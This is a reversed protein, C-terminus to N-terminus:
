QFPFCREAVGWGKLEKGRVHAKVVAYGEFLTNTPLPNDKQTMEGAFVPQEIDFYANMDPISVKHNAYYTFNSDTSTFPVSPHIDEDVPYVEHHGDPFMATAFVQAPNDGVAGSHWVTLKTGDELYIIFLNWGAPAITPGYQRDLWSMSKEPIIDIVEGKYTINGTVWQEPFAYEYTWDTGWFFFGNGADFFNPGRPSSVLNFEADEVTSKSVQITFLDPTTSYSEFRDTKYHLTNTAFTSNRDNFTEGFYVGDNIDLLSVRYQTTPPSTTGNALFHGVV